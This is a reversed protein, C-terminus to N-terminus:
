SSIEVYARHDGKYRKYTFYLEDYSDKQEFIFKQQNPKLFLEQEWAGTLSLKLLEDSYWEVTATIGSPSHEISDGVCGLYLGDKGLSDGCLEEYVTSEFSLFAGHKKTIEEFKIEVEVTGDANKVKKTAGMKIYLKEKEAGELSIIAVEDNYFLVKAEIGSTAHEITDGTCASYTGDFGYSDGCSMYASGASAIFSVNLVGIISALFFGVILPIIKKM